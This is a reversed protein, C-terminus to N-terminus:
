IKYKWKKINKGEFAKQLVIELIPEDIKTLFQQNVMKINQKLSKEM